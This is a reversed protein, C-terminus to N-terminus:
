CEKFCFGIGALRSSYWFFAREAQKKSRSQFLISNELRDLVLYM